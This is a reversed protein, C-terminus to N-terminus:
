FDNLFLNYDLNENIYINYFIINFFPYNNIQETMNVSNSSVSSKKKLNEYLEIFLKYYNIKTHRDYYVPPKIEQFDNDYITLIYNCYDKNQHYKICRLQIIM